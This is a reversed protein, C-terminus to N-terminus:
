RGDPFRGSFNKIGRCDLQAQIGHAAFSFVSNLTPEMVCSYTGFEAESVPVRAPFEAAKLTCEASISRGWPDRAQLFVVGFGNSILM